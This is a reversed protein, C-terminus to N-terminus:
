LSVWWFVFSCRCACILVVLPLLLRPRPFVIVLVFLHLTCVVCLAPTHVVGAAACGWASHAHTVALGAHGPLLSVLLGAHIVPGTHAFPTCAFSLPGACALM